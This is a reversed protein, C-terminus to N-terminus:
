DSIHAKAKEYEQMIIADVDFDTKINSKKIWKSALLPEKLSLPIILIYSNKEFQYEAFFIKNNEYLEKIISSIEYTMIRFRSSLRRICRDLPYFEKSKLTCNHTGKIINEELFAVISEGINEVFLNPVTENLIEDISIHNTAHNEVISDYRNGTTVFTATKGHMKIFNLIPIMDKDNSIIIYEEIEPYNNICEMVDVAIQLDACNKGNNSTHISQVGLSNLLTQHHSASLDPYDFNCYLMKKCLKRGTKECWSAFKPFFNM